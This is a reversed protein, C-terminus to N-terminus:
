CLKKKIYGYHFEYMLLKSLELISFRVYIPKDLTLVLKNKHIAVVNKSFIEQSVFNPRSVYKRYNRANNVLRLNIRKRLTKMTKGYISNIM